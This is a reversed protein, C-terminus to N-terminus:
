RKVKKGNYIYVGKAPEGPLERGQLDYYRRTGDADITEITDIDTADDDDILEMGIRAAANRANPLLYARFPPIVAQQHDDTDTMVPHWNGDGQLVYAGLEAAEGNSIADFTGRLTYGLVDVQRGYTTGGNAPITQSITTNLNASNLRQRKNGVVKLLYPKMAELEGYVEEFVLKSGTRQSLGYARAGIPVELKYPVCFTYPVADKQMVRSNEIQEAEFAYPVVYSLSDVMRYTKTRLTGAASGGSVTVVVNTEDTEGYTAPVYALTQQTNIGYKAFGGNRLGAVVDTSDCMLFDVSRLHRAGAFLGDEMGTLTIPLAIQQLQTLPAITAKDLSDVMTFQLATLDKVGPHADFWGEVTTVTALEEETATGHSAFACFSDDDNFAGKSVNNTRQWSSGTYAGDMLYNEYQSPRVYFADFTPNYNNCLWRWVALETDIDVKKNSLIYMRTLSADDDLANWNFTEMDDGLVLTELYECQQLARSSVEKCTRPLILTKLNYCQLFSYAPLVDDEFVNLDRTTKYHMDSAVCYKSKKLQADYLDIYELRGMYNRSNSWPCFGSLYRLLSLDAGSIPGIVKLKTIDTYDGRVSNIWDYKRNWSQGMTVTLGLAQALTNPETVTVTKIEDTAAVTAEPNIHDAYQAWKTRYAKVVNRPVYVVFSSPLNKLPDGVLEPVSDGKITITTLSRCGEFVDEGIREISEPLTVRELDTDYAFTGQLEKVRHFYQFDDFQRLKKDKRQESFILAVDDKETFVSPFFEGNEVLYQWVVDSEFPAVIHETENILCPDNMYDTWQSKKTYVAGIQQGWPDKCSSTAHGDTLMVLEELPYDLLGVTYEWSDYEKLAGTMAVRKLNSCGEFIRGSMTTLSKPLIVSELPTCNYFLYAPLENDNHIDHWGNRILTSLNLYHAKCDDDKVISAGYLNLYRLQGDTAKGRRDYGNNGALYRIVWLDLDNLPGSVTLSDYKAYPGHIYRPEDGVTIGTYSWEVYLGLKDALTGAMDLKVVKNTKYDADSVIYDKYAAWATKYAEVSAAPVYIKLGDVHSFQTKGTLKAPTTGLVRITTLTTCDNFAEEGIETVAAPLEIETLKYCSAFAFPQITKITSPLVINSLNSCGRFWEQGVYDLGVSEFHKFEAFSRINDKQEAFKDNLWAFGDRYGSIRALDIYEDWVEPDNGTHAKDYYAMGKLAKRIGDDAPKIICPQFRDKYVAWTSDAEFWEVQEPMMKICATTGDLIGTGMKVQEPKIPDIHNDGDTVLYLMDLSALSRCNAFCSDGLAMELDTYSDGFAGQGYLDTFNVSRLNQNGYFAKRMVADLQYNNWEGIDNCLKLAGQHEQLFQDDAGTVITHEILHGQVKHERKISNNEYAYAYNGGYEQYKTVPKAEQYTFFRKLPAWSANDLFDQKRSPDIVIHFKLPDLGAFISDGALVFNEPGLPRTGGENDQLLLNLETLNDCGVFASDPITFLMSMAANSTQDEMAHFRVTKLNKKNQFADKACTMTRDSTYSNWDDDFGAYITVEDQDEVNKIYTHYIINKSPTTIVYGGGVLGVQHINSLINERMGKQLNDGDYTGSGGWCQSATYAGITTTLAAAGYYKSLAINLAKERAAAAAAEVAAEAAEAAAVSQELAAEATQLAMRATEKSQQLLIIASYQQSRASKMVKIMLETIQKLADPSQEALIKESLVLVRHNKLVGMQELTRRIPGGSIFLDSAKKNNLESLVKVLQRRCSRSMATEELEGDIVAVTGPYRRLAHELKHRYSIFFDEKAEAQALAQVADDYQKSVSTLEANKMNVEAIAEAPDVAPDVTPTRLASYLSYAYMAAEIAIRPITWLSVDQSVVQSTELIGGPSTMFSYTLGDKTFDNKSSTVFDVPEICGLYPEWNPDDMFEPYLETAVLIKFDEPMTPDNEYSVTGSTLEELSHEKLGFINDGPIVDKPGLAMWHDEGDEVYYFLRLEKLSDCGAFANNQIVLKLDSYSNDSLGNTQYFDIAKVEKSGGLSKVAITKYNYQSGPDNYIRMIGGHEKLYDDDAGLVQTYWINESSNSLLSAANFQQYDANWYKLQQMLADHGAADNKIPDGATTYMETYVAGNVEMNRFTHNYIIIRQQYDKWVTSGMYNQYQSADTSFKAQPSHNFVSDGIESVQDARLAEWHNDGETTYQMMKIETLNGCYAFARDGITFDFSTAPKNTNADTDKFYLTKLETCGQFACPAITATLTHDRGVGTLDNHIQAGDSPIAGPVWGTVATVWVKTNGVQKYMAGHNDFQYGKQKVTEDSLYYHYDYSYLYRYKTGDMEREQHAVSPSTEIQFIPKHYIDRVTQLGSRQWPNSIWCGGTNTDWHDFPVDDPATLEIVAGSKYYDVGNFPADAKSVFRYTCGEPVEVERFVAEGQVTGLAFTYYCDKLTCEVGPKTRVYTACESASIFPIPDFMCHSFNVPINAYGVMGASRASSGTIVGTFACSEITPTAACSPNVTGVIGGFSADSRLEYSASLESSVYCNSITTAANGDIMVAVGAAFQYGSFVTGTVKLDRITAGDLRIFPACYDDVYAIHESAADGRNYTLTYMGGSFTGSFPKSESGVSIGQADIDAVMEFYTGSYSNGNRVDDALKKWDASFKILYPDTSTGSGEWASTGHMVTGSIVADGNVEFCYTNSNVYKRATEGNVKVDVVTADQYSDGEKTINFSFLMYNDAVGPHGESLNRTKPAYWESGMKFQCVYDGVFNETVFYLKSKDFNHNTGYTIAFGYAQLNDAMSVHYARVDTTNSSEKDAIFFNHQATGGTQDGIVYALRSTPATLSVTAESVNYEVTGSYLRGVLGGVRDNGTVQAASYCGRTVANSESYNNNKVQNQQYAVVGGCYTDGDLATCQVIVSSEVRCNEVTGRNDCVIAAARSSGYFSSNAIVLNKVTGNSTRILAAYGESYRPTHLGSITHGDGDLTGLFRTSSTGITTWKHASMDLDAALRFTWGNYDNGQSVEYALLGLEAASSITVTKQEAEAFTTARIGDDTWRSTEESFTFGCYTCTNEVFNHTCTAITVYRSNQCIRVRNTIAAPSVSMDYYDYVCVDGLTINVQRMAGGPGDLFVTGGTITASGSSNGNAGMGIATAYNGGTVHVTGGSITVTGGNGEGKYGNGGGRGAANEAGTANVIGGYINVVGGNSLRGGGIGAANDSNAKANVTGGYINVAGGQSADDGGGIGAGSKTGSFLVYEGNGNANVTGGYITVTGRIGRNQGGGIGAAKVGGNATVTGGFITVFGCSGSDGGGIGAACDNGTATINGGHVVLSGADAENGGGIGAGGSYSNTVILRGSDNSQGYIYLSKGLELKVGGTLTLTSGDTLILHANPAVINLTQYSANGKVVYYTETGATGLGFWEGSGEILTYDTITKEVVSVTKMTPNWSREIYTVPANDAWVSQVFALLAALTLMAKM